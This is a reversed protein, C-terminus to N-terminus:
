EKALKTFKAKFENIERCFIMSGNTYVVYKIDERGNTCETVNDLLVTYINGTKLHKVPYTFMIKNTNNVQEQHKNEM